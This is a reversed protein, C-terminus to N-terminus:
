RSLLSLLKRGLSTPASAQESGVTVGDGARRRLEGQLRETLTSGAAPCGHCAGSLRVTVHQGSVSVLEITGGHSQAYAGLQGDLLERVLGALQDDSDSSPEVRWGPETLAAALAGRIEDGIDRWTRGDCLTILVARDGVVVKEIVGRRLWDALTDPAARVVGPPPLNGAPVVFRLQRPDSTATAHLPIM